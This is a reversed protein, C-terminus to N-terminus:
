GAANPRTFSVEADHLGVTNKADARFVLKGEHDVDVACPIEECVHARVCWLVESAHIDAGAHGCLFGDHRITVYKNGSFYVLENKQRNVSIEIHGTLGPYTDIIHGKNHISATVLNGYHDISMVYQQNSSSVEHQSNMFWGNAIALKSM